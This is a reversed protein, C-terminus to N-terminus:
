REIQGYLQISTDSGSSGEEKGIRENEDSYCSIRCTERRKVNQPSFCSVGPKQRRSDSVMLYSFVVPIRRRLDFDLRLPFSRSYSGMTTM